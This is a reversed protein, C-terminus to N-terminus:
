SAFPDWSLSGSLTPATWDIFDAPKFTKLTSNTGNFVDVGSTDAMGKKLFRTIFATLSAQQSSPFACHSHNAAVSVGIRDKIGLAEFVMRAAVGGGYAAVPGLWDIDNELLIVARPACLAVTFHQDALLKQVPATKKNQGSFLAKFDGGQWNQEGVIETAEQINQGAAAEATSVRWLASGGSGGEQMMTLSVREDFAGMCLAGKGAYSCGTVGIAKVNIGAEPLLELADIIRSAGWAWCIDSGSKAAASGYLTSVLGNTPISKDQKAFTDTSLTITAIGSPIPLSSGNCTIVCPVPAAATGGGTIKFTFSGTKSGVTMNVTVTGGSFTATLKDPAPPKPGYVSAQLMASLDARLKEWDGKSSIRTGDIFKFPDPLKPINASTGNSPLGPLPTFNNEKWGPGSMGVSGTGGTGPGSGGAGSSTGGTGHGTGGGGPSTGGTAPSGGTGPGPGFGGSASNYGGAGPAPGSGGSGVPGPGSGGTGVGKSGGGPSPGSGGSGGTGGNDSGCATVIGTAVLAGLFVRRTNIPNIPLDDSTRELEAGNSQTRSEDSM